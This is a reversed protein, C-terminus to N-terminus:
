MMCQFSIGWIEYWQGTKGSVALVDRRRNWVWSKPLFLTLSMPISTFSDERSSTSQYIWFVLLLSNIQLHLGTEWPICLWSLLQMRIASVTEPVHSNMILPPKCLFDRGQDSRNCSVFGQHPPMWSSKMQALFHSLHPCLPTPPHTTASDRSLQFPGLLCGLVFSCFSTTVSWSLPVLYIYVGLIRFSHKWM